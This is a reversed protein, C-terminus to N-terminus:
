EAEATTYRKDALREIEIVPYWLMRTKPSIKQEVTRAFLDVAAQDKFHVVISRFATKDKQDFEPMGNWAQSEDSALSAADSVGDLGAVLAAFEADNWGLGELGGEGAADLVDLIKLLAAEDWEGLEGLRNDALGLARAESESLDISRVPVADFGLRKAAELRAHGAIVEGDPRALIVAGFGFRRIGAMLEVIQREPHLKANGEWGRLAEIPVWKAAAEGHKGYAHAKSGETM